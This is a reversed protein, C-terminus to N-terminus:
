SVHQTTYLVQIKKELITGGLPISDPAASFAANVRM